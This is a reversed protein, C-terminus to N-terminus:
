QFGERKNPFTFSLRIRSNTETATGFNRDYLGMCGHWEFVYGTSPAILLSVNEGLGDGTYYEGAWPHDGLQKIEAQIRTRRDEAAREAGASRKADACGAASVVISLGAAIWILSAQM